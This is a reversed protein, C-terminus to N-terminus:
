DGGAAVPAAEPSSTPVPSEAFTPSMARLAAIAPPLEALVRDIQEVTNDLGVTLRLSGRGIEPPYGLAAIVHSPELAGSTCASGSSAFIGKMDLSLLISEGEVHHFVFSANNPLRR